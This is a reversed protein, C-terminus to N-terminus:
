TGNSTAFQARINALLIMDDKQRQCPERTKWAYFGSSSVGMWGCMRDVSMAARNADIVRFRM